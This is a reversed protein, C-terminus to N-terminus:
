EFIDAIQLVTIISSVTHLTNIGAKNRKGYIFRISKSYSFIPLRKAYESDLCRIQKTAKYGNTVPM